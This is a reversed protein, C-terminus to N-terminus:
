FVAGGDEEDREKGCTHYCSPSPAPTAHIKMAPDVYKSLPPARASISAIM